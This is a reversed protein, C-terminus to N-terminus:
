LKSRMTRRTTFTFAFVHARMDWLVAAGRRKMIANNNEGKNVRHTGFLAPNQEVGNECSTTASYM